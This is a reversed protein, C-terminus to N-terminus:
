MSFVNFSEALGLEISFTLFSSSGVSVKPAVNLISWQCSLAFHTGFEYLIETIESCLYSWQLALELSQPLWTLVRGEWLQIILTEHRSANVHPELSVHRSM